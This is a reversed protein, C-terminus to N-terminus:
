DNWISIENMTQVIALYLYTFLAVIFYTVLISRVTGLTANIKNLKLQQTTEIWYNMVGTTM